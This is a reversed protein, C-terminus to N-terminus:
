KKATLFSKIAARIKSSTDGFPIMGDIEIKTAQVAPDNEDGTADQPKQNENSDPGAHCAIEHFWTNVLESSGVEFQQKKPTDGLMLTIRDVVVILRRGSNLTVGEVLTDGYQIGFNDVSDGDVRLGAWAAYGEYSEGESLDPMVDSHLPGKVHGMVCKDDNKRSAEGKTGPADGKKESVDPKKVCIISEGTTIEWNNAAFARWWDDLWRPQIIGKPIKFRQPKPVSVIQGKANIQNTLYSPVSLAPDRINQVWQSASIRSKEHIRIGATNLDVLTTEGWPHFRGAPSGHHPTGITANPHHGFVVQSRFSGAGRDFAPSAPHNYPDTPSDGRRIMSM